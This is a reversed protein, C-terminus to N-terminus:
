ILYLFCLCHQICVRNSSQSYSRSVQSSKLFRAWKTLLRVRKLCLPGLASSTTHRAQWSYLHNYYVYIHTITFHVFSRFNSHTTVYDREKVATPLKEFSHLNKLVKWLGSKGEKGLSLMESVSNEFFHM